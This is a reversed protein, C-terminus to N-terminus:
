YGFSKQQDDVVKVRYKKTKLISVIHNVFKQITETVVSNKKSLLLLIVIQCDAIQPPLILGKEDRHTM